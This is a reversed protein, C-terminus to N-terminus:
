RKAKGVLCVRWITELVALVFLVVTVIAGVVARPIYSLLNM